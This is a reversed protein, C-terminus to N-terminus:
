HLNFGVRDSAQQGLEGDDVTTIVWPNEIWCLWEAARFLVSDEGFITTCFHSFHDFKTSRKM